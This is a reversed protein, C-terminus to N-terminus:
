CSLLTVWCQPLPLFSSNATSVARASKSFLHFSDFVLCTLYLSVEMHLLDWSMMLDVAQSSTVVMLISTLTVWLCGFGLAWALPSHTPTCSMWLTQTMLLSGGASTQGKLCPDQPIWVQLLSLWSPSLWLMLANLRSKLTWTYLIFISVSGLLWIWICCAQFFYPVWIHNIWNTM